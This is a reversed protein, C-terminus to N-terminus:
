QLHMDIGRMAAPSTRDSGFTSGSAANIVYGHIPTGLNSSTDGAPTVGTWQQYNTISASGDNSMISLAVGGAGRTGVTHTGDTSYIGRSHTLTVSSINGTPRFCWLVTHYLVSSNQTRAWAQAGSTQASGLVIYANHQWSASEGSNTSSNTPLQLDTWGPPPWAGSAWTSNQRHGCAFIIDGAQTNAPWYGRVTTTGSGQYHRRSSVYSIATISASTGYFDAALQIEGSAPANGKGHYESLSHPASGGFEAAIQALSIQGSSQLAM